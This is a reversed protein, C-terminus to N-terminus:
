SSAKEYFVLGIRDIHERLSPNDITEYVSLDITWPLLLDDLDNEIRLLDEFSLTGYLTLDIDSGNKWTGKARSGYLLARTVGTHASFVSRIREVASDPLGYPMDTM